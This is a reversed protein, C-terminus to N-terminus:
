IQGLGGDVAIEGGTLYSADDSALFLVARAVEDAEGWRGMPVQAEVWARVDADDTAARTLPTRIAGPSVANIRVRRALVREDAALTRALSRVAAKSAAYLADGPRGRQQAVSSTFVVSAGDALHEFAQTFAYFVGKVNVAMLHDFFSEDTDLVDPCESLGANAFLVDIKGFANATTEMLMRLDAVRSVDARVALTDGGVARQAAHLAGENRGALVVRAGHRRFLQATALGIGSSGGTIVAVKGDLRRSEDQQELKANM